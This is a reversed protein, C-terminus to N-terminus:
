RYLSKIAGWTSEDIAIIPEQNVCFKNMSTVPEASYDVCNAVSLSSEGECPIIEIASPDEDLVNCRIRQSWVWDAQCNAFVACFGGLDMCYCGILNAVAPSTTVSAITVNAPLVLDYGTGMSGNSSPLWWVYLDFSSSGTYCTISHNADAFLGVYPKPPLANAGGVVLSVIVLAIIPLVGKM